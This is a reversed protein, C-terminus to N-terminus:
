VEDGEYTVKKTVLRFGEIEFKGMLDGLDGSFRSLKRRETTFKKARKKLFEIQEDTPKRTLIIGISNYTPYKKIKGDPKISHQARFEDAHKKAYVKDAYVKEITNKAYDEVAANHKKIVEAPDFSDERYPGSMGSNFWGPTPMLKVPRRCGHDDPEQGVLDELPEHGDKEYLEVAEQGVGCEGLVGTMYACLEREFNGAYSDTDVVFIYEKESPM